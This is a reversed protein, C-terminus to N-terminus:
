PVTRERQTAADAAVTALVRSSINRDILSNKGAGTLTALWSAALQKSLYRVNLYVEGM